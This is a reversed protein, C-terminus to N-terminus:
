HSRKRGRSRGRRPRAATESSQRTEEIVVLLDDGFAKLRWGRLMEVRELEERSRADSGAIQELVANPCLVGPDMALERARRDRWRKLHELRLEGRRDLRRRGDAPRRPEIPKHEPGSLGRQIADLIENGMRRLVLDTIGKRKALTRRTRPPNQALDLLTGNGLVKFPPRDQRRARRDRLMFLERLVALNQPSLKKAGKIRLYGERDFPREPWEREELLRFEEQAWSLRQKARLEKELISALKILYRVDSAAYEIQAPRLPRRSWDTRQQDKSLKVGFHREVLAGLGVGPYGLLQASVMTDFINRVRLDGYRRLVYLDYDAAHLVIRVEPDALLPALPELGKEPLKLPDILYIGSRGAIQLLCLKEFYHFFSDAETDIGIVRDRRLKRVVAELADPTQILSHDAM